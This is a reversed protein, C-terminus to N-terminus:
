FHTAINGNFHKLHMTKCDPQIVKATILTRMHVVGNKHQKGKIDRRSTNLYRATAKWSWCADSDGPPPVNFPM